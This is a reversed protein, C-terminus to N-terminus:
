ANTIRIKKAIKDLIANLYKTQIKELFFESTKLYESIIVKTPNNHKFLLEFVAAFLITKLLKDTRKLDIDDYLYKLLTEEILEKRREVHNKGEGILQNLEDKTEQGDNSENLVSEISNQIKNIYQNSASIESQKIYIQKEINQVTNLIANIDGM